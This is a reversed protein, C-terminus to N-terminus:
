FTMYALLKESVDSGIKTSIHCVIRSKTNEINNAESKFQAPQWPKLLRNMFEM